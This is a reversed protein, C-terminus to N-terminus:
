RELFYIKELNATNKRLRLGSGNSLVSSHAAGELLSNTDRSYSIQIKINYNYLTIITQKGKLLEKGVESILKILLYYDKPQYVM